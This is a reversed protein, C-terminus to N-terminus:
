HFFLANLAAGVLLVLVLLTLGMVIGWVIRSKGLLHETFVCVITRWLWGLFEGVVEGFVCRM